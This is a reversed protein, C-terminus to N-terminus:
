YFEVCGCFELMFYFAFFLVKPWFFFFFSPKDLQYWYRVAKCRACRTTTPSRCVECQYQLRRSLQVAAPSQVPVEVAPVVVAEAHKQEPRGDTPDIGVVSGYYGDYGDYTYGDDAEFEAREIEESALVLLRKIEERRAVSRRWKRRVLFGVIPLVIGAVVVRALFGLDGGLLM